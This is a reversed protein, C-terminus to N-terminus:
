SAGISRAAVSAEDDVPSVSATLESSGARSANRRNSPLSGAALRVAHAGARSPGSGTSPRPRSSTSARSASVTMGFPKRMPCGPKEPQTVVIGVVTAVAAFRAAVTAEGCRHHVCAPLRTSVTAARHSTSSNPKGIVEGRVERRTARGRVQRPHTGRTLMGPLPEPQPWRQFAHRGDRLWPDVGAVGGVVDDM